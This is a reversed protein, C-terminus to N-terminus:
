FSAKKVSRRYDWYLFGFVSGLLVLAFLTWLLAWVTPPLLYYKAMIHADTRACCSNSTINLLVLLDNISFLGVQVGLFATILKSVDGGTVWAAGVTRM